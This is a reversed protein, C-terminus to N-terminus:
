CKTSHLRVVHCPLRTAIDKLTLGLRKIPTAVQQPIQFKKFMNLSKDLDISIIKRSSFTCFEGEGDSVSRMEDLAAQRQLAFKTALNALSMELNWDVSLNEAPSARNAL